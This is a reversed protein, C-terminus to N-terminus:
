SEGQAQLKEGALNRGALAVFLARVFSTPYLLPEQSHRLTGASPLAIKDAERDDAAYPQDQLRTRHCIVAYRSCRHPTAAKDDKSM